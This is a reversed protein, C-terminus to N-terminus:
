ALCGMCVMEGFVAQSSKAADIRHAQSKSEYADISEHYMIPM